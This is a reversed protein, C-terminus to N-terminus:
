SAEISSLGHERLLRLWRRRLDAATVTRAPAGDLTVTVRIPRATGPDIAFGHLYLQGLRTVVPALAGFPDTATAAAAPVAQAGALTVGLGLAGALLARRRRAGARVRHSPLLM